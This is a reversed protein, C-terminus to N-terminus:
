PRIAALVAWGPSTVYVLSIGGPLSDLVAVDGGKAQIVEIYTQLDKVPLPELPGVFVNADQTSVSISTVTM